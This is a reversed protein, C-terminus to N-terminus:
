EAEWLYVPTTDSTGSETWEIDFTTAGVNQIVGSCFATAGSGVKIAFATSSSQGASAGQVRNINTQGSACWMGFSECGNTASSGSPKNGLGYIRIKVPTRGLGHTIQQTGSANPSNGVGSTSTPTAGSVVLDGSGLVSASNITKINTASVLTAQKADLATQQATSVPKATDATNDVNALGVQTKTLGTLSGGNGNTALKADLAGQLDTQNALTGTVDGWAAGSGTVVLDGSGLISDGNVTKINTGSILPDQYAGVQPYREDPSM